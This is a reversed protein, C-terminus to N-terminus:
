LKPEWTIEKANLDRSILRSLMFLFDSLRNIYKLILPDTDSGESLTIINREARRCVTRTVHCISVAPNGGPLVFSRLPTVVENIKDIETELKMIDEEKLVPLNFKKANGEASLISAIIMLRDQINIILENYYENFWIDRLLGCFSILEDVTGYAEIRMDSKSVRRGNLLSTTGGDGGKTYIKM